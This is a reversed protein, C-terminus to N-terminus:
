AINDELASFLLERSKDIRRKRLLLKEEEERIQKKRSELMKKVERAAVSGVSSKRMISASASLAKKIAADAFKLPKGVVKKSVEDVLKSNIQEPRLKKEIASATVRGAIQHATRFPLSREKVILDALDTATSFDEDCVRAMKEEKVKMTAIIKNLLFLSSKAIKFSDLVLPNLEQFDRNYSCPLAKVISLAASLNGTARSARARMIELADPNKKQPMISSTSAFEDSLEVFDFEQSSWLIIEEAIRSLEAMLISVCSLSELIFDRSSVADMSNEVLGEFGLLKATRDRDIHFSTGALAGAGLPSLNTRVYADNFRSACRLLADLHALLHHALTTPQARQLHTYGPMTTEINRESLALLTKNLDLILATVENIEDRIWMRLDCAIQDNRSRATHLRGGADGAVKIVHSEIAVHIDESKPDLSLKDVGKELLKKLAKLIKAADSRPIIRKEALMTAHAVDCFIDYYAISRDFDMSSTYRVFDEDVREGLRGKRIM